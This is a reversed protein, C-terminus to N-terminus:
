SSGVPAPIVLAISLASSAAIAATNGASAWAAVGEVINSPHSSFLCSWICRFRGGGKGITKWNRVLVVMYVTSDVNEWTALAGDDTVHCGLTVVNGTSHNKFHDAFARISRVEYMHIYAACVTQSLM